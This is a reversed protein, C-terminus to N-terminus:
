RDPPYERRRHLEKLLAEIHGDHKRLETYLQAIHTNQEQTQANQHQIQANQQQIQGEIWLLRQDTKQWRERDELYGKAVEKVLREIENGNDAM